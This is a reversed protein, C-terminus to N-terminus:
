KCSLSQENINFNLLMFAFMNPCLFQRTVTNINTLCFGVHLTDGNDDASRVPDGDQAGAAPGNTVLLPQVPSSLRPLVHKMFLM